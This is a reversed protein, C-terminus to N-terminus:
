VFSKPPRPPGERALGAPAVADPGLQAANSFTQPCLWPVPALATGGGSCHGVSCCGRNPCNHQVPDHDASPIATRLESMAPAAAKKVMASAGAHKAAHVHPVAGHAIAVGSSSAVLVLAALAMFASYVIRVSMGSRIVSHRSIFGSDEFVPLSKARPPSHRRPIDPITSRGHRGNGWIRRRRSSALLGSAQM